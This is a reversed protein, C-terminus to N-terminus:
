TYQHVSVFVLVYVIVRVSCVCRLQMISRVLDASPTPDVFELECSRSTCTTRSNVSERSSDRTRQEEDTVQHRRAM